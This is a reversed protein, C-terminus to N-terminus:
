CGWTGGWLRSFCFPGLPVDCGGRGRLFLGEYLDDFCFYNLITYM